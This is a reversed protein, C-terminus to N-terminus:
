GNSVEKDQRVNKMAARAAVARAKVVPTGLWRIGEILYRPVVWEKAEIAFRLAFETKDVGQTNKWVRDEMEQPGLGELDFLSPNALMFAGEFSRGCIGGNEEPVEFALRRIGSTKEDDTKAILDAPCIDTSNFWSKLCSNTTHTGESVMSGIVRQNENKKGSDIDTIVLTRLELFELLNFFRHAHAGNIEITSIYQSSLQADVREIMKPLLLRESTGEILVAKDAFLLDCRTLTMYQHLFSKDDDPEGGLGKRLDKIETQFLGGASSPKALFYRMTDFPAENAIHSSHTTVVFQVPWPLDSNYKESFVRVIENLKRIFVEQMQPHLHAEPEEIFVLHVGPAVPRAKYAKFFELIRLLIYILNRIGLGNYAEPLTIGNIAAYRVTTHNALLREVDLTTETCIGPDALGPYGFLAFAPLLNALNKKFDKDIRQQIDEVAAELDIAVQRDKDDASELRANSFLAELIQGLVENAKSTSDDLGRQANIFGTQLLAEIKSWELPRENTDDMPDMAKLSARYLKPLRERIARFLATKQDSESAGQETPVGEYLLDVNGDGLEYRIVILAEACEPNLDVVFESLPGLSPAGPDYSITFRTEIVPLAGRVEVEEAGNKRANFATWFQEHSALSFDELRFTPAKGSLLRRFLETLSTKGSNNRGVIVTTIEEFSLDVDYLLRFNKVLVKEIRM